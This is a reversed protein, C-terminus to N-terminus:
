TMSVRFARLHIFDVEHFCKCIQGFQGRTDALIHGRGFPHGDGLMLDVLKGLGRTVVLPDENIHFPGLL